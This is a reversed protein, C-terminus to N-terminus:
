KLKELAAAIREFAKTIQDESTAYSFRICEPSGFSDGGVSAVHAEELLYMALDDGSNIVKDGYCKGFYASCDPYLYFAGDPVCVKFGPIRSALKVILDRRKAFAQRMKEVEDQPGLYAAEATKQSISSAGSTYQGQIKSCASIIDKPGAAFGIRWGTMAYAKSVGNIVVTREKMWPFQAISEHAGVYNLHEYIEDSVVAIDPYKKLMTAIAELEAKSYIAGTPNSPSCLMIAKTRPTIAAEIQEATVKFGQSLGAKIIVPTGGALIVMQPYSVWCPTPILVEEAPNDVLAMIANCLAQKAGNSVIIQTPPYHLNNEKELKVSIAERLWMYGPIPSYKSYNNEVAEIAAKKIHDPTNFDPEGVSLSIIDIGKDKLEISKQLMAFTASTALKKVREAPMIM